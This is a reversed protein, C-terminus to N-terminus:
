TWSGEPRRDCKASWVQRHRPTTVGTGYSAHVGWRGDGKPDFVVGLRPSFASDKAVLSGVADEGHNKDWRVGLNFTFHSNASWSDNLFLSHTRFNTGQSAVSIPNPPATTPNRTNVSSSPIPSLWINSRPPSIPAIM